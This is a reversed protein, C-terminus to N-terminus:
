YERGSIMASVTISTGDTSMAEVLVRDNSDLLNSRYPITVPVASIGEFLTVWKDPKAKYVRVRWKTKSLNDSTLSIEQLEGGRITFIGSYTEGVVWEVVKQYTTATTTITDVKSVPHGTFAFTILDRIEGLRFIQLDLRDGIPKWEVPVPVPIPPAPAPPPPPAPVPPPPVPPRPKVEITVANSKIGAVVAMVVFKGEETPTFEVRYDGLAGVKGRAVVKTDLLIQVEEMPQPPFVTGEAVVSEGLVISTKSLRLWVTGVREM